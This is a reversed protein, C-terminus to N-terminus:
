GREALITESLTFRKQALARRIADSDATPDILDAFADAPIPPLGGRGLAAVVPAQPLSPLRQVLDDLLEEVSVGRSRATDELKEYLPDSVAIAKSM